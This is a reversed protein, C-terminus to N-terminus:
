NKFSIKKEKLAKKIKELANQGIGHLGSIETETYSSFQKLSSIGIGSLARQAPKALKLQADINDASKKIAKSM